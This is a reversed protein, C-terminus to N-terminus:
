TSVCSMVADKVSGTGSTSIAVIEAKLQGIQVCDSDSDIQFKFDEKMECRKREKKKKQM